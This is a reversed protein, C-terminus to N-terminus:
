KFTAQLPLSNQALLVSSPRAMPTPLFAICFSTLRSRRFFFGNAAGVAAVEIRLCGLINDSGDFHELSHYVPQLRVNLAQFCTESFAVDRITPM